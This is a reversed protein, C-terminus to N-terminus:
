LVALSSELVDVALDVEGKGINLSPVLRVANKGATLVFVGRERALAMVKAPAEPDKFGLGLILGRGRVTPELHQPFWETLLQLRQILYASISQIQSVMVPDSLRSLVHYGIACALPSGGFTTGHTGPTMTTGVSDRLLIAGIPYGNALPKAMTLMDPHAEVPLSSHAWLTGTRYLGCQIEDFILVAGVENCKKRLQILWETLAPHIGGEGQVPEVIVACTDETVLTDLAQADNLEGVTVGPLLPAFPAQYKPNTTVSLAGMSRGHFANEFCVIKTKTCEADPANWAKNHKLSWREKGVKRAIKLAGENAETGSNSFFVQLGGPPSTSQHGSAFGLGGERQTTAVLLSALQPAWENHYVNSAHIIKAAQENIVKLVGEDAHGLANVAIGATFDLYKRGETDWVYSGKGHSLVFEPCAYVPLLPAKPVKSQEASAAFTYSPNVYKTSPSTPSTWQTTSLLRVHPLRGILSRPTKGGCITAPILATTAREREEREAARKLRLEEQKERDFAEGEQYDARTGLARAMKSLEIKKAAAMAHTDTPKKTSPQPLAALLKTRLASVQEEIDAEDLGKEELELQLELCKVEVKRKREHELIAEDPERHKPPAAEWAAQRDQPSQYSRLASINRVVYGNTGSGRPTTLGIGNYM